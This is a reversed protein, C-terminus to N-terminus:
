CLAEAIYKGDPSYSTTTENKYYMEQPANLLSEDNGKTDDAEKLCSTLSFITLFAIIFIVIGYVHRM